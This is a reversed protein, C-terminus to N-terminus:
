RQAQFRTRLRGGTGLGWRGNGRGLRGSLSGDVAGVKAVKGRWDDVGM